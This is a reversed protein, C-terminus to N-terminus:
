WTWPGQRFFRLQRSDKLIRVARGAHTQNYGPAALARMTASLNGLMKGAAMGEVDQLKTVDDLPEGGNFSM